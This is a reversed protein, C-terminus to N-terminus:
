KGGKRIDPTVMPMLTADSNMAKSTFPIVGIMLGKRYTEMILSKPDIHKARLVQNKGITIKGIWGGLNKLLKREKDSSKCNQYSAEVLEKNLHKSNIKEVFDIYLMHFNPEMSARKMVLYQAFWAYYQEDLIEKCEKAKTDTNATEAAALLTEISAASGFNATNIARLKESSSTMSQPQMQVLLLLFLALLMNQGSTSSNPNTRREDLHGKNVILQLYCELILIPLM